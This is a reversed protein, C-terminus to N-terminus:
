GSPSVVLPLVTRGPPHGEQTVRPEDVELHFLGAEAGEVDVTFRFPGPGEVGGGSAVGEAVVAGDYSLLRWTVTSEFTRSCGAVEFPPSVRAGAVPRRAIVFAASEPVGECLTERGSATAPPAKLTASGDTCAPGAVALLVGVVAGWAGPSRGIGGEFGM